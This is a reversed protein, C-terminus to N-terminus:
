RPARKGRPSRGSPSVPSEQPEPSPRRTRYSLGAEEMLRDVTGWPDSQAEANTCRVVRWGAQELKATRAKDKELGRKTFHREDDVEIVLQDAHLVFDPFVSLAWLPHQWRYPRGLSAIAPEIAWESPTGGYLGAWNKLMFSM